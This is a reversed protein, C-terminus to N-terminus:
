MSKAISMLIENLRRVFTCTNKKPFDNILTYCFSNLSKFMIYILFSTIHHGNLFIDDIIGIGTAHSLFYEFQLFILRTLDYASATAHDSWLM